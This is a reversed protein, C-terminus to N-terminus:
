WTATFNEGLIIKPVGAAVPLSALLLPIAAFLLAKWHTRM